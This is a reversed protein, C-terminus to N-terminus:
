DFTGDAYVKEWNWLVTVNTLCLFEVFEEVADIIFVFNEEKLTTVNLTTIVSLIFFIEMNEVLFLFCKKALLM